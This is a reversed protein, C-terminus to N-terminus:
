AAPTPGIARSYRILLGSVRFNSTTSRARKSPKVRGPSSGSPFWVSPERGALGQSNVPAGDLYNLDFGEVHDIKGSGRADSVDAKGSRRWVCNSPTRPEQEASNAVAGSTAAM